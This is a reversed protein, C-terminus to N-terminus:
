GDALFPRAEPWAVGDAAGRERLAALQSAITPATAQCESSVRADIAAQITSM